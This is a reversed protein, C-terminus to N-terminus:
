VQKRLLDGPKMPVGSVFSIQQKPHPANSISEGDENRLDMVTFSRGVDGPSLIELTDGEFFRNRQQVFSRNEDIREVVAMLDYPHLYDASLPAQKGQSDSSLAFGTTYPRHSCKNLEEIFLDPIEKAGAALADLAMRYANVVTAVYYISKMRGELKLSSVGTQLVQPLIPMLNMDSSNLFYTGLGDQEVPFYEGGKGRERFEYSWRCPQVCEGRNSDRGSLYNSLLCRGSYSICMAGHVFIELELTQPLEQRMRAIEDLRLERALIIREVGQDHWFRAAQSNLTNAQTSLHIPIQPALAKARMLVGPDNIILADAGARAAALITQDVQPMQEDRAFANCAVYIRKGRTHVYSCAQALSEEDFNEALNRLSMASLGVYVADAGFHLATKLREMNGAPALLEPLLNNQKFMIM